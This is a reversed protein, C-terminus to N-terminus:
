KKDETEEIFNKVWDLNKETVAEEVDKEENKKKKNSLKEQQARKESKAIEADRIKVVIAHNLRVLGYIFASLVILKFLILLISIFSREPFVIGAYGMLSQGAKLPFVIIKKLRIREKSM